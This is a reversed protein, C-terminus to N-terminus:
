TSSTMKLLRWRWKQRWHSTSPLSQTMKAEEIGKMMVKMEKMDKMMEIMMGELSVKVTEAQPPQLMNTTKEANEETSEDRKNCKQDDCKEM